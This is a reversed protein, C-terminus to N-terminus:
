IKAIMKSLKCHLEATTINKDHLFRNVACIKRSAPNDIEPCM